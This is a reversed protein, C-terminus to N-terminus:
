GKAAPDTSEVKIIANPFPQGFRTAILKVPKTENPNLRYTFDEAKVFSSALSGKDYEGIIIKNQDDILVLRSSAYLKVQDPKLELRYIGSTNEYWKPELYPISGTGLIEMGGAHVLALRLQGIDKQPGRPATTPLSNGLDVILQNGSLRAYIRNVLKQSDGRTFLVRGPILSLPASPIYASISGVVRGKTFNLETSVPNYGDVTFRISLTTSGHLAQLTSSPLNNKPLHWKVDQLVSHYFSSLSPMGRSQSARPWIDQFSTTRYDGSFVTQQDSTVLRVSFGWIQSVGQQDPDLDVIKGETRSQSPALHWGIAKDGPQPQGSPDDLNTVLCNEIGWRGTGNQNWGWKKVAKKFEDPALTQALEFNEPSNNVTSPDAIFTGAFHITAETNVRM